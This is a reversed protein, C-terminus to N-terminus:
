VPEQLADAYEQLRTPQFGYFLEQGPLKIIPAASFGQEVLEAHVKAQEPHTLDHVTYELGLADLKRYTAKCQVCNPTSYVHIM